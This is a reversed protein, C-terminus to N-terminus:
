FQDDQKEFLRPVVHEVGDKTKKALSALVNVIDIVDHLELDVLPDDLDADILSIQRESLTTV